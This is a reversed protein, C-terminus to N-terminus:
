VSVYQQQALLKHGDTVTITCNAGSGAASMNFVVEDKFEHAVADFVWNDLAHTANALITGGTDVCQDQVTGGNFSHNSVIIIDVASSNNWNASIHAGVAGGLALASSTFVLAGIAAILALRTMHSIM